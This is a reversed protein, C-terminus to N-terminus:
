VKDLYVNSFYVNKTKTVTKFYTVVDEMYMEFATKGRKTVKHSQIGIKM